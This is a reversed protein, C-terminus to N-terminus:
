NLPPSNDNMWNCDRSDELVVTTSANMLIRKKLLDTSAGLLFRTGITALHTTAQLRITTMLDVSCIATRARLLVITARESASYRTSNAKNKENHRDDDNDNSTGIVQHSSLFLEHLPM